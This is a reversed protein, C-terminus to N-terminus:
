LTFPTQWSPDNVVDYADVAYKDTMAEVVDEAYDAVDDTGDQWDMMDDHSDSFAEEEPTLPDGRHKKNSLKSHRRVLRNTNRFRSVHNSTNFVDEAQATREDCEAWIEGYKRTKVDLIDQGYLSDYPAVTNGEAIWEDLQDTYQRRIGDTTSTTGLSSDDFTIEVWNEDEETFRVLQIEM